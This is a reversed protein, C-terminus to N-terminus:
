AVFDVLDVSPREPIDDVVPLRSSTDVLGAHPHTVIRLSSMAKCYRDIAVAQYGKESGKMDSVRNWWSTKEAIRRADDEEWGEEEELCLYCGHWDETQSDEASYRVPVTRMAPCARDVRAPVDEDDDDTEDDVFGV